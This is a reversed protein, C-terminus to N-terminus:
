FLGNLVESYKERSYLFASFPCPSAPNGDTPQPYRLRKKKRALPILHELIFHASM